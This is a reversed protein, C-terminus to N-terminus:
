GKHLRSALNRSAMISTAHMVQSVQMQLWTELLLSGSNYHIDVVIHEPHLTVDSTVLLRGDLRRELHLAKNSVATM